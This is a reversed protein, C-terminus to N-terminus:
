QAFYFNTEMYRTNRRTFAKIRAILENEETNENIFGDVKWTLFRQWDVHRNKIMLAIPISMTEYILDCAIAAENFSSDVVILDFKQLNLLHVADKTSSLGAMNINSSRIWAKLRHLSIRDALVLMNIETKTLM